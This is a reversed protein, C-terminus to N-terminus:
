LIPLGRMLPGERLRDLPNLVLKNSLFYAQRFEAIPNISLPCSVSNSIIWGIM